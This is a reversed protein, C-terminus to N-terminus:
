MVIDDGKPTISKPGLIRESSFHNSLGRVRVTCTIGPMCPGVITGTTNSYYMNRFRNTYLKVLYLRPRNYISSPHSWRVEVYGNGALKLELDTPTGAAVRECVCVCVCVFCVCVCVCVCIYM